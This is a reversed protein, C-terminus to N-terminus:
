SVGRCYYNELWMRVETESGLLTFHGSVPDFIQWYSQGNRDCKQKIQPETQIQILYQGFQRFKKIIYKSINM